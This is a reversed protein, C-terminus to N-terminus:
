AHSLEYYYVVTGANEIEANGFSRCRVTELKGSCVCGDATCVGSGACEETCSDQSCIEEDLKNLCFCVDDLCSGEYFGDTKCNSDCTSAVCGDSPPYFSTLRAPRVPKFTKTNPPLAYAVDQSELLENAEDELYESVDSEDEGSILEETNSTPTTIPRRGPLNQNDVNDEEDIQISSDEELVNGDEGIPLNEMNGINMTNVTIILLVLVGIITIIILNDGKKM